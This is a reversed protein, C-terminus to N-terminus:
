LLPLTSKKGGGSESVLATVKKAAISVTLGDLIKRPSTAQKEEHRTQQYSFHIDRFEIRGAIAPLEPYDEDHYDSPSTLESFVLQLDPYEACLRVIAEGFTPITSALGHFYPILQLFDYADYTGSLIGQVIYCSALASVGYTMLNLKTSTTLPLTSAEIEIVATKAVAERIDDLERTVSATDHIVKYNKLSGM